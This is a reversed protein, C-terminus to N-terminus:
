ANATAFDHETWASADPDAAIGARIAAEMEPSNRQFRRTM